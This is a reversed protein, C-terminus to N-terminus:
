QLPHKNIQVQLHQVTATLYISTTKIDSHGMMTSLSFIDCGGELMLTAFTHRLMHAHFIIGSKESLKAFLRKIVNDSMHGRLTRSVFFYPSYPNIAEREKLYPILYGELNHCLPIMRDKGGKGSIVHITKHVLDVDSVKLNILERYRVGSYMFMALIAVARNKEFPYHYPYGRAWQILKEAQSVNLHKPIKKPLRPKPIEKAPNAEIIGQKVCWNLFVSISMLSSRRTKPSWNRHIQGWVIWNEIVPKTVEEISQASSFGCFSKFMAKHWDITKPSLNELSFKYQCFQSHLAALNM